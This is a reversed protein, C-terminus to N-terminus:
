QYMEPVYHDLVVKVAWARKGEPWTRYQRFFENKDAKYLQLMDPITQLKCVLKWLVDKLSNRIDDKPRM